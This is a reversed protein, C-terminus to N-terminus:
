RDAFTLQIDLFKPSPGKGSTFQLNLVDEPSVANQAHELLSDDRPTGRSLLTNYNEINVGVRDTQQSGFCVVRQLSPLIPNLQEKGRLLAIHDGLSRTGIHSAIFM